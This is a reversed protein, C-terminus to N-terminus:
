LVGMLKIQLFIIIGVVHFPFFISAAIFAFLLFRIM